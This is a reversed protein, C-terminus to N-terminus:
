LKMETTNARSPIAKEPYLTIMEVRPSTCPGNQLVGVPQSYRKLSVSPPYSVRIHRSYFQVYFRFALFSGESFTKCSFELKGGYYWQLGYSLGLLTLLRSTKLETFPLLIGWLMYIRSFFIMLHSSDACVTLTSLLITFAPTIPFVTISHTLWYITFTHPVLCSQGNPFYTSCGFSPVTSM